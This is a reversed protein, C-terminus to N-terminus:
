VKDAIHVWHNQSFVKTKEPMERLRPLVPSVSFGNVAPRETPAANDAGSADDRRNKPTSTAQPPAEDRTVDRPHSRLSVHSVSSSPSNTHSHGPSLIAEAARPPGADKYSCYMAGKSRVCAKCPLEQSCRIKRRRCQECSLAPRRRLSSAFVWSIDSSVTDLGMGGSPPRLAQNATKPAKQAANAETPHALLM